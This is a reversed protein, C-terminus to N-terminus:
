KNLKILSVRFHSGIKKQYKKPNILCVSVIRDDTKSESIVIGIGLNVSGASHTRVLDGPKFMTM